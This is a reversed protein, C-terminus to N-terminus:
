DKEESQEAKIEKIKNVVLIGGLVVLVILNSAGIRIGGLPEKKEDTQEEAGEKVESSQSATTEAEETSDSDASKPIVMIAIVVIVLIIFSFVRKKTM